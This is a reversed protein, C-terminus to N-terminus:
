ILQFRVTLVGWQDENGPIPAFRWSRIARMAAQDLVPYGSSRILIVSPKVRGSPDVWFKVQVTGEWGERLARAPYEPVVKRLIKRNQIQGTIQLSPGGGSSKKPKLLNKRVPRPPPASIEPSASAVPELRIGGGGGGGGGGVAGGGRSSLGETLDLSPGGALPKQKLIEETGRVSGSSIVVDAGELSMSPELSAVDLAAGLDPGEAKLGSSLELQPGSSPTVVSPRTSLDLSPAKVELKPLEKPKLAPGPPAKPSLAPSPSQAKQLLKKVRPNRYRARPSEEMYSVERLYLDPPTIRQTQGQFYMLLLLHIIASTIYYPARSEGLTMQM